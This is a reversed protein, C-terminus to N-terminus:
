ALEYLKRKSHYSQPLYTVSSIRPGSVGYKPHYGFLNIYNDLDDQEKWMRCLLEWTARADDRARHTNAIGVGYVTIADSLKHPYPQRDKYITLADLLKAQKLCADLSNRHLLWYLFGLDFQANYAVLLTNSSSILTSIRAAAQAESVGDKLLLADTIGTLSTVEPSLSRGDPLRILTNLEEPTDSGNQSRSHKVAGFEIIRDRHCDLGTTEVDFVILTEFQPLLAPHSM